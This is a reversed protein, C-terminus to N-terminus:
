TSPIEPQLLKTSGQKFCMINYILIPCKLKNNKTFLARQSSKVLFIKNILSFYTVNSVKWVSVSARQTVNQITLERFLVPFVGSIKRVFRKVCLQVYLKHSINSGANNLGRTERTNNDFQGRKGFEQKM